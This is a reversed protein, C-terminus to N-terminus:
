FCSKYTLFPPILNKNEINVTQVITIYIIYTGMKEYLGFVDKKYRFQVKRGLACNIFNRTYVDLKKCTIGLSITYSKYM